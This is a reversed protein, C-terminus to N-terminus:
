SNDNIETPVIKVSMDLTAFIVAIKTRSPRSGANTCGQPEEWQSTSIDTMSCRRRRMKRLLEANYGWPQRMRIEPTVDTWM